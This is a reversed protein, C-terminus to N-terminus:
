SIFMFKRCKSIFDNINSYLIRWNKWVQDYIIRSKVVFGTNSNIYMCSSSTYRCMSLDSYIINTKTILEDSFPLKSLPTLYGIIINALSSPIM